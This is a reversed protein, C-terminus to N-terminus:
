QTPPRRRRATLVLGMLGLGLLAATSPEPIINLLVGNMVASDEIDVANGNIVSIVGDGAGFFAQITTDGVNTNSTDWVITGLRYTGPYFGVDTSAVPGLCGFSHLSAEWGADGAARNILPPSCPGTPPKGSGQPIGKWAFASVVELGDATDYGVSVEIGWLVDTTTLVVDMCLGSTIPGYFGGACGPGVDGASITLEGGTGDQFLVDVTVGAWADQSLGGIWSFLVLSVIACSKRM